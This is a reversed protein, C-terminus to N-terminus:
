RNSSKEDTKQSQFPLSFEVISHQDGASRLFVNIDGGKSSM